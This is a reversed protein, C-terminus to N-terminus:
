GGDVSEAPSQHHKPVASGRLLRPAGHVLYAACSGFVGKCVSSTTDPVRDCDSVASFGTLKVKVLCSKDESFLWRRCKYVVSHQSTGNTRVTGAHSGRNPCNRVLVADFRTTLAVPVWV